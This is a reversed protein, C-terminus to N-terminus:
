AAPTTAARRVVRTVLLREIAPARDPMAMFNGQAMQCGM